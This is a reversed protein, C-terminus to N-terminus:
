LVTALVKLDIVSFVAPEVEVQHKIANTDERCNEYCKEEM